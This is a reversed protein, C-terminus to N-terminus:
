DVVEDPVCRAHPLLDTVHGLVDDKVQGLRVEALRVAQLDKPAVVALALPWVHPEAFGRGREHAERVFPCSDPLKKWLKTKRM